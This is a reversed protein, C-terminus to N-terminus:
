PTPKPERRLTTIAVGTVLLAGGVLALASPREGRFVFAATIGVVPVLL